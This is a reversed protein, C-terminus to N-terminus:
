RDDKTKAIPKWDPELFHYRTRIGRLVVVVLRGPQAKTVAEMAERYSKLDRIDHGDISQILDGPRLGGIGAWGASDIGAVLVGHIAKDWRQEDRDFFTLERVTLDFDANRDRLAETTGIHTREVIVSVPQTKGARLVVLSASEGIALRRVLRAFLGGDQIGQPAVADGNLSSIIDGVALGAKEAQTGPYVRAVRFGRADPQGLKRALEVTLPQTAVGIWGKAVERPPDDEKEPKPKILTVQDEGHRDFNVLLFDPPPKTDMATRYLDLLVTLDAIPKGDIAKLVDGPALAPEALAAPGGDRVGTVLVGGPKDLHLETASKETVEEATLGWGRVLREDGRDKELPKPTVTVEKTQGARTLTLTIASAVQLDALKQMVPPIEEAFRATVADAGVRVLVDGPLIGAADGPSGKMVSNILVGSTLGTKELQQLGVGLWVRRVERHDILEQSVRKALKSPIAFGIASGGLENVGVVEGSLNVLPGGSNGSNILADHQIWRTFVGTRQGPELEMEEPDDNGLGGALIREPNSVIGLTVSRSLAFPSGMAMVYDGTQLDDSNGFSAVPLAPADAPRGKLNLKLVALDTLPDEGVLEAPIEQRDALTCTFKRGHSTVHQNTLVYGDASIITGSGISRGKQEQGGRYRATVAHINVLAPFVHDRAGGILQRLEERLGNGGM